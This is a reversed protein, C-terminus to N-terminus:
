DHPARSSFQVLMRDLFFGGPTAVLILLIHYIYIYILPRRSDLTSYCTNESKTLHTERQIWAKSPGLPWLALFALMQQHSSTGGADTKSVQSTGAVCTSSPLHFFHWVDQSVARQFIKHLRKARRKSKSRTLCLKAWQKGGKPTCPPSEWPSGVRSVTSKTLIRFRFTFFIIVPPFSAILHCSSPTKHGQPARGPSVVYLPCNM